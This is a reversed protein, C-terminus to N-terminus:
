DLSLASLVSRLSVCRRPDQRDGRGEEGEQEDSDSGSGGQVSDGTAGTTGTAGPGNSAAARTRKRPQSRQPSTVRGGPTGATPAPAAVAAAGGQPEGLLRATEAAAVAKASATRARAPSSDDPPLGAHAAALPAAAPPPLHARAAAAAGSNAAVIPRLDMMIAQSLSTPRAPQLAPPSFPTTPVGALVTPAVSVAAPRMMFQPVAPAMAWQQASEGAPLAPIWSPASFQWASASTELTHEGADFTAGGGGASWLRLLDESSRASPFLLPEPVPALPTPNM